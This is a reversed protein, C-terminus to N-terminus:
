RLTACGSRGRCRISRDSTRYPSWPSIKPFGAAAPPLCLQASLICATPRLCSIGTKDTDMPTYRRGEIGNKEQRQDREECGAALVHVVLRFVFREGHAGEKVILSGGARQQGARDRSAM